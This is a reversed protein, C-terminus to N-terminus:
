QPALMSPTTMVVATINNFRTRIQSVRGNIENRELLMRMFGERRVTLDIDMALNEGVEAWVPSNKWDKYAAKLVETKEAATLENKVEPKDTLDIRGDAAGELIFAINKFLEKSNSANLSGDDAVMKQKSNPFTVDRGNTVDRKTTTRLNLNM